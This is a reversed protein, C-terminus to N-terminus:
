LFLLYREQSPHPQDRGSRNWLNRKLSLPDAMIHDCASSVWYGGSAAVDGMWCVSPKKMQKITGVMERSAVVSGGPSNVQFLVAKITPDKEASEVLSAFTDPTMSEQFLIPTSTITGSFQIVAIRNGMPISTGIYFLFLAVGLGLLIGVFLNYNKAM